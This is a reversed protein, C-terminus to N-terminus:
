KSKGKKREILVESVDGFEVPVGEILVQPVVIRFDKPKLNYQNCLRLLREQIAARNQLIGTDGLQSKPICM